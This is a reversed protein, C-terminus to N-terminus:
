YLDFIRLGRYYHMLFLEDGYVVNGTINFPWPEGFPEGYIAPYDPPYVTVVTPNHEM